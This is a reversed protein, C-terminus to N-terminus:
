GENCCIFHHACICSVVPLAEYGWLINVMIYDGNTLILNFHEFSVDYENIDLEDQACVEHGAITVMGNTNIDVPIHEMSPDEDFQEKWKDLVTKLYDLKVKTNM